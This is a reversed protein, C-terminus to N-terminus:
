FFHAADLGKRNLVTIILSEKEISQTMSKCLVETRAEVIVSNADQLIDQACVSLTHLSLCIFVCSLSFTRHTMQKLISRNSRIM